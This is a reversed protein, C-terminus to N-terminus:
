LVKHYWLQFLFLTWLKYKYGENGAYFADRIMLVSDSDFFGDEKLRKENIHEFLLAKLPGNLWISFPIDFGSKPRDLLEKPIYQHAIQKLLYKKTGDKIKLDGPVRAMFQILELDLLPEKISINAYSTAQFSKVLEADVMSTKFYSGIVQDVTEAFKPFAIEDFTTYFKTKEDKLLIKIEDQYFLVPKTKVMESIKQAKLLQLFKYYKTPFNQYNKLIPIKIPNFSNLLHYIGNKFIRPTKLLHDFQKVDDATAFVEDGGDGVFLTDFGSKKVIMGMLVTPTAGYDAFPEDYVECLKPVIDIADQDNFYHEHHNSGLYAAIKKAHHAENIDQQNFGITFTDIKQASRQSLLAATISSDYGGSLSSAINKNLDIRKDISKYLIQEITELAKPELIPAKEQEYCSELSWYAEEIWSQTQMDYAIFHGSKVKRTDEFITYPQLIYGYSLYLALANKDIKRRFSPVTYFDKLSSGFILTNAHDYFYLPQIGARDKVLYLMKKKTDYITISYVGDLKEFLKTELMKYGATILAVSDSDDSLGFADQLAKENYLSGYFNVVVHEQKNVHTMMPNNNSFDVYEFIKDM